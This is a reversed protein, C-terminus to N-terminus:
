ASPRPHRYTLSLTVPLAIAATSLTVLEKEISGTNMLVRRPSAATAALLGVVHRGLSESVNRGYCAM